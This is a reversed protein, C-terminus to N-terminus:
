NMVVVLIIIYSLAFHIIDIFIDSEIADAISYEM